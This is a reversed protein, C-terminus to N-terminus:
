VFLRAEFVTVAQGGLMVKDGEYRVNVSGGRPSAQYGRLEKKELRKSWYTALCCHSTGTVPDENVGVWPSFYRSVFDYEPSDSQATIVVAREDLQRLRNFDPDLSRVIQENEVEILQKDEFKGVYLPNIKFVTLLEPDFEEPRAYMAPFTMEILTATKKSTLIGSRTHFAITKDQPLINKEWLIHGAALTAHGCINVETKPTFWRLSFDEGEPLVFATESFDLEFALAQMWAEEREKELICVGAPNGSFPQNTFADVVFLNHEM